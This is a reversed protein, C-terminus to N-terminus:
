DASKREPMTVRLPIAGRLMRAGQGTLWLYHDSPLGEYTLFRTPGSPPHNTCKFIATGEDVEDFMAVYIMEAGAAKAGAFQSWLFEGKRRPIQDLAAGPKLNHWSFGPFVVPLYDLSHGRCWALDPKWFVDAHRKAQAPDRYRGPTWPSVVDALKLVDHLAPDRIADRELGRWGTPVGLMVTCGDAKLAAVLDHCEKLSYKRGDNFGVGWGAVLPKGRHHLYAQDEGIRLKERLM